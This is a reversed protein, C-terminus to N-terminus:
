LINWSGRKWKIMSPHPSSALPPPSLLNFSICQVASTYQLSQLAYGMPGDESGWRKKYLMRWLASELFPPDTLSMSHSTPFESSDCLLVAWHHCVQNCIYLLATSPLFGFIYLLTEDPLVSFWGEEKDSIREEETRRRKGRKKEKEHGIKRKREQHKDRERYKMVVAELVVNAGGFPVETMEESEEVPVSAASAKGEQGQAPSCASTPEGQMRRLGVLYISGLVLFLWGGIVQFM